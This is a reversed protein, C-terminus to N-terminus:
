HIISVCIRLYAAWLNQYNQNVVNQYFIDGRDLEIAGMGDPVFKYWFRFM